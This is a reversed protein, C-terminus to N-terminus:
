PIEIGLEKKMHEKFSMSQTHLKIFSNTGEKRSYWSLEGDCGKIEEFGRELMEIHKRSDEDVVNEKVIRINFYYADIPDKLTKLERKEDGFLYDHSYVHYTEFSFIRENDTMLKRLFNNLGEFDLSCTKDRTDIEFRFKYNCVFLTKSYEEGSETPPFQGLADMFDSESTLNPKGTKKKLNIASQIKRGFDGYKWDPSGLSGVVLYDTEKGVANVHNGSRMRVERQAATRKLTKLTGTFCFVKNSFVLNSKDMQKM